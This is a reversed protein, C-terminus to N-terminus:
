AKAEHERSVAIACVHTLRQPVDIRLNVDLIQGFIWQPVGALGDRTREKRLIDLSVYARQGSLEDEM